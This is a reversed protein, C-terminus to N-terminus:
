ILSFILEISKVGKNLAMIANKSLAGFSMASINLLSAFYPQKCDPGGINIRPKENIETEGKQYMSHEIWEYGTIYVDMQTRFPVTDNTKKSRQYILSRYQRNIPRGETDTEVFYQMIEPRIAELVYNLRGILPFNKKITQKKQLMDTLGMLVLAGIIALSWLTSLWFYAAAGITGLIMISAIIFIRRVTM